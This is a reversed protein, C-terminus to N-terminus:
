PFELGAVLHCGVAFDAVVAYFVPVPVRFQELPLVVHVGREEVAPLYVGKVCHGRVREAGDRDLCADPSVIRM